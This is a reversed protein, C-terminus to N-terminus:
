DLLYKGRKLNVPGDAKSHGTSNIQLKCNTVPTRDKGLITQFYRCTQTCNRINDQRRHHDKTSQKNM